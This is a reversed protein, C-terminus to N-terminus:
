RGRYVVRSTDSEWVTIATLNALRPAIKGWLYRALLESTPNALEPIEDLRRHDLQEIIPRVAAAIENFDIVWGRHPDVRGAVHVDLRYNHGHLRRCKHGQPANPLSHAAEFRFTKIVEAEM